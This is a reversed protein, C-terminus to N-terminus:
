LPPAERALRRWEDIIGATYQARPDGDPWPRDTTLTTRLPNQLHVIRTDPGYRAWESRECNWERCPLALIKLVREHAIHDALARQDLSGYNKRYERWREVPGHVVTLFTAEWQRLWSRTARSARVAIVDANLPSVSRARDRATYAVDFPQDWLDDLPKRIYTDGGMLLLPTGDVAEEVARCWRDIKEAQPGAGITDTVQIDRHWTPCHVSATYALVSALKLHKWGTVWVVIRPTLM